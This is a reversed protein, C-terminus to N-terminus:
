SANKNPAPAQSSAPEAALTLSGAALLTLLARTMHDSRKM